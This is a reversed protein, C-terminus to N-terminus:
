YLIIAKATASHSGGPKLWLVDQSPRLFSYSVKVRFPQGPSNTYVRMDPDANDQILGGSELCAVGSGWCAEVTIPSLLGRNQVYTAVSAKNAPAGNNTADTAARSGRVVAYRVADRALYDLMTMDYIFRVGEMFTFILLLFYGLTLAIEAFEAGGQRSAGAICHRWPHAPKLLPSGPRNM